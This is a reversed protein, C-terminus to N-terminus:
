IVSYIHKFYRESIKNKYLRHLCKMQESCPAMIVLITIYYAGYFGHLFANFIFTIFLCLMQNKFRSLFRNYVHHRMFKATSTNYKDIREKLNYIFPIEGKPDSWTVINWCDKNNNDKGYAIGCGKVNSEILAWVFYYKM